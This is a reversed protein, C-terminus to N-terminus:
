PLAGPHTDDLVRVSSISSAGDRARGPAHRPVHYIRDLARLLLPRREAIPVGARKWDDRAARAVDIWRELDDPLIAELAERLLGALAPALGGTSIALLAPGRRIVAGLYASASAVDDVANIFLGRATAAAAVERNVEPTAAAVVWRAGDLDSAVFGREIIAVNPVGGPVVGPADHSRVAATARARIADNIEPAVVTINAGAELLGELKSAAVTGGGVVVVPLGALKLFVPYLQAPHQLRDPRMPQTRFSDSSVSDGEPRM